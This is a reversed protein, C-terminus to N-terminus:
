LFTTYLAIIKSLYVGKSEWGTVYETGKDKRLELTNNTSQDIFM